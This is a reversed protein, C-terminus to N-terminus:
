IDFDICDKNFPNWGSELTIHFFDLKQVRTSDM